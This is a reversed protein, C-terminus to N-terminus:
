GGSVGSGSARGDPQMDLRMSGLQWTVGVASSEFKMILQRGRVRIYVQGTFEEIPVTATRTIGASSSGGVSEPSSIGSGTNKLPQLTLTGSPSATTSGSFTIDPLVRRVFMFKDGDDLDFEASEISATIAVPTGNVNDDVGSEHDVLNNQYTAALPYNRLGSDLWATRALTGYYWIDEAYNYIVYRDITTSGSSCYFWWIENFGENTGAFVQPYQSTAIDEFVYRRLDCRLTQTRGDYKYFKDKGMWYSVGNAYAVANQSVISINEGVIQAGWVEPAGLYQLSYVSSDTWVLVEQRSQLATIIESGRSLRLDGAQNTAAPTWNFPDEQDSWRILMPDFTASGIPNCGFAFVFRNIDSVLLYNQLTPVGSAGGHDSLLYANPAIYNTGSGTGAVNVLAGSPTTSINFTTGTTNRVYYLVGATIGTPMTSTSSPYFRIPTGDAFSASTSIVTPSAATATFTLPSFGLTADWYYIAGYRPGFVLDEGFNSQSWLRLADTSPDGVGWTGAGWAGAGWGVLPVTFSPGTNIQYLAQITGGLGSGTGSANTSATITYTNTATVTIQYGGYLTIGNITVAPYFYVFDDTQYGGNADTVTVTPLGNTTAFPNTLTVHSRFPTIDNYADGVELYFKLNTGVGLINVAGLTVWNWLSRCVGLFTTSSIRVWGGIKEPTGQRFRIKDGAYWGNEMTYRTNERNVGSKLAIKKLM